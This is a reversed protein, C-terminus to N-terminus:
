GTPVDAAGALFVDAARQAELEPIQSPEFQLVDTMVTRWPVGAAQAKSAADYREALSFREPPKWMVQIGSRVAREADGAFAFALAMTREWPDSTETIRDHTKFILGERQLAAGEASGGGEAPFMYFLPTRTTGALDRVDAKVSELIPTLDVGASEWLDVGSPLQWLSGPDARFVDAWDIKAGDSDFEELDGKVARQRFAQMIAVVLRQLLMLNIRDLDDIVDEFEGMTRGFLDARNPFEVVPVTQVPLLEEGVFEWGGVGFDFQADTSTRRRVARLVRGPLYLYALDAGAVDDAFVKLGALTRRRDRPDQETVVQRPDEGTILPAGIENDVPGVIAYANGLALKSRHVMKSVAPMNNARWIRDAEQDGLQDGAAGTRFGVPQMRERPAEVILSAWNARATRAFSRFASKWADPGSPLPPDGRYYADLLNFREQRKSLEDLLRKLWWGDSNPTQTDIPM